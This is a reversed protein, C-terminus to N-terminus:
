WQIIIDWDKVISVKPDKITLVSATGEKKESAAVGPTYDWVLDEGAEVKISTPKANLGLVIVKEVRVEAISTAYENAPNFAKLEVGDVAENPREVGLDKSSLRITRAKKTPKEAIFERWVFQGKEHSYTEGDDLYLDGRASGAKSLAVRLTFPDKKMSTSSRRPRERTPVISGGRIFLPVQHLAAPVTVDKGKSAGRYAFHNFYDYYVKM